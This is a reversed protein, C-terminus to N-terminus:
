IPYSLGLCLRAMFDMRCPLGYNSNEVGLKELSCLTQVGRRTGWSKLDIDSLHAGLVDLNSIWLPKCWLVGLARVFQSIPTKKVIKKEKEKEKKEKKKKQSITKLTSLSFQIHGLMWLLPELQFIVRDKQLLSENIQRLDKSHPVPM